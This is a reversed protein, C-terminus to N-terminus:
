KNFVNNDKIVKWIADAAAKSGDATPHIGDAKIYQSYKGAFVPRLDLWYCKPSINNTVINQIQPRLIDLRNKLGGFDSQPEPYFFYVVKLVEDKKMQALLNKLANTADQAYQGTPQLCDNGGGDMIVYKVKSQKAANNYQNPISPYIGGSLKTGSVAYDRFNENNALVGGNRADQELYKTIDHSLAIFSEGIVLVDNGKVTTVKSIPLNNISKESFNGSIVEANTNKPIILTFLFVLLVVPVMKFIKSQFM